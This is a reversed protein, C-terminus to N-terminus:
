SPTRDHDTTRSAPPTGNLPIPSVLQTDLFQRMAEAVMGYGEATYHRGKMRFPLLSVPDPHNLLRPQMDVVPIGLDAIGKLLPERQRAATSLTDGTIRNYEPLYVFVLQGGKSHVEDRAIKIARLFLELEAIKAKGEVGNGKANAPKHRIKWLAMRLNPFLTPKERLKEAIRDEVYDRVTDNITEQSDLLSQKFDPQLYNRLLSDSYDRRLDMLDNGEYYIWFVYSPGGHPIYERIAALELLPGNGGVGLNVVNPFDKRLREVITEHELVCDGQTFSDGVFFIYKNNKLPWTGVPNRFGVEDTSFTSYYGNENCGVVQAKAVGALPLIRRKGLYIHNELYTNAPVAPFWNPEIERNDLIVQLRDRTDYSIGQEQAMRFAPGHALRGAVWEAMLLSLTLSITVLLLNKLM